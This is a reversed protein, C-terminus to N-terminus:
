ANKWLKELQMGHTVNTVGVNDFMFFDGPNGIVHWIDNGFALSFGFIVWM